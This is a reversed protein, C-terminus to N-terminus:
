HFRLFRKNGRCVCSPSVGATGGNSRKLAAEERRMIRLSLDEVDLGTITKLLRDARFHRVGADCDRNQKSVIDEAFLCDRERTNKGKSRSVMEINYWQWIGWLGCVWLAVSGLICATSLIAAVFVALLWGLGTFAAAVMPRFYGKSWYPQNKNQQHKFRSNSRVLFPAIVGVTIASLFVVDCM